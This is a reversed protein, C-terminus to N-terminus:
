RLLFLLAGGNPHFLQITRNPPLEHDTQPQAKPRRTRLYPRAMTTAPSPPLHHQLLFKNSNRVKNDHANASCIQTPGYLRNLPLESHAEFFCNAPGVRTLGQVAFKSM